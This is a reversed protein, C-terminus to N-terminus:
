PPQLAVGSGAEFRQVRAADTPDRGQRPGARALAVRAAIVCHPGPRGALFPGEDNALHAAPPQPRPHAPIRPSRHSPGDHWLADLGSSTGSALPRRIHSADCCGNSM